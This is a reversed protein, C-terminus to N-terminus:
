QDGDDLLRVVLKEGSVRGEWLERLGWEARDLGGEIERVPHSKIRGEDLEDEVRRVFGSLWVFDEIVAPMTFGMFKVEEGLASWLLLRKPIVKRKPFPQELLLTSCYAADPHNALVDACLKASKPTSICDFAKLIPQQLTSAYNTIKSALRPDAHDFAISAGYSQVLSFNHPSCTTISTYGARDM